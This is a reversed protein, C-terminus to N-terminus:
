GPIHFEPAVFDIGTFVPNVDTSERRIQVLFHYLRDQRLTANVPVERTTDNSTAPICIDGLDPESWSTWWPTVNSAFSGTTRRYRLRARVGHTSQCTNEDQFYIRYSSIDMEPGDLFQIFPDVSVRWGNLPLPCLLSVDGVADPQFMYGGHRLRLLADGDDNAPRCASAPITTSVLEIDNGSAAPSLLASTSLVLTAILATKTSM